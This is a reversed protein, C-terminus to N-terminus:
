GWGAAGSSRPSGGSGFAGPRSAPALSPGGVSRKRGRWASPPPAHHQTLQGFQHAGAPSGLLAHALAPPCNFEALNAAASFLLRHRDGQDAGDRIFDLTARNLRPTGDAVTARRQAQGEAEREVAQLAVQWDATAREDTATVSPLGFPEPAAALQQIRDASLHLLEDVSLRRKHLGTKPHRSNPARFLRVKDYVGTDISVGAPAALAEAFRRAVRNFTVSPVPGWFTPLGVHFGKKGSFFLMLDDEDLAAPYRHLAGAALRRANSLAREPNDPDDIDWWVFPAWCLGNYGKCSGTKELHRRFDEPFWFASLYGEREVEAKPDCSAYAALAAGADVLRRRNTANGLVRFGFPTRSSTM